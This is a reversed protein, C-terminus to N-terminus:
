VHARGIQKFPSMKKRDFRTVTPSDTDNPGVKHTFGPGAWVGTFDPKGSADRPVQGLAAVACVAWVLVRTMM